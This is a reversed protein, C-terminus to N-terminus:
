SASLQAVMQSIDQHVINVPTDMLLDLKTSDVSWQLQHQLHAKSVDEQPTLQWTKPHHAIILLADQTTTKLEPSHHAHNVIITQGSQFITVYGHAVSQHTKSVLEEKCTQTHDTKAHRASVM